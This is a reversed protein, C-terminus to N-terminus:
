RPVPRFLSSNDKRGEVFGANVVKRANRLASPDAHVGSGGCCACSKGSCGICKEVRRVTVLVKCATVM